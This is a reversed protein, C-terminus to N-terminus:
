IRENLEQHRLGQLPVVVDIAAEIREFVADILVPLAVLLRRLDSYALAGLGAAM